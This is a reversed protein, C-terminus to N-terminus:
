WTKIVEGRVVKQHYNAERASVPGLRVVAREYRLSPVPLSPPRAHFANLVMASSTQGHFSAPKAASYATHGFVFQLSSKLRGCHREQCPVYLFYGM